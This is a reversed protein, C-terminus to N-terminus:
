KLLTQIEQNLKQQRIVNQLYSQSEEFTAKRDAQYDEILLIQWGFDNPKVKVLDNQHKGKLAEQLSPDLKEQDIWGIKGEKVRTTLDESNEQVLKSFTALLDVKHTSELTKLLSTAKTEDKVLINRLQYRAMAKPAEKTFAAELDEKAVNLTAMYKQSWLNVALLAKAINFHLDSEMQVMVKASLKKVQAYENKIKEKNEDNQQDYEARYKQITYSKLEAQTIEVTDNTKVEKEKLDYKTLIVVAAIASGISILVALFIFFKKM